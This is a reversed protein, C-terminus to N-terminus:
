EIEWSIISKKLLADLLCNPAVQESGGILCQVFTLPFINEIEGVGLNTGVFDM